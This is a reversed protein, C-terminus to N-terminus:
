TLPIGLQQMIKQLDQWAKPKDTPNRLLYAPHYTVMLRLGRWDYWRGRLRGLADQTELLTHAATAGLACVVEPRLIELQRMLYPECADVEDPLPTRNNPPRCKVVNAIYVDERRLKMAGIMKDLLQGARGVFPRGTADEDAGPGEGVFVLRAQPHGEGPVTNTRTRCLGCKTCGAVQSAVVALEEANRSRDVEAGPELIPKRFLGVDVRVPAEPAAPRAPSPRAVAPAPVAAGPVAPAPVAAGPAAAGPASPRPAPTASAAPASVRPRRVRRVGLREAHELTRRVTDHLADPEPRPDSM